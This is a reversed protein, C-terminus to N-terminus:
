EPGGSHTSHGAQAIVVSINKSVCHLANGPVLSADELDCSQRVRKEERM